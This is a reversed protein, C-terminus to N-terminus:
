GSYPSHEAAALNIQRRWGAGDELAAVKLYVEGTPPYSHVASFYSQCRSLKVEELFQPKIVPLDEGMGVQQLPDPARFVLIFLFVQVDEDSAQADFETELTLSM